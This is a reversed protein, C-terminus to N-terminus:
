SALGGTVRMLTEQVLLEHDLTRLPESEGKINRVLEAFTDVYRARDEIKIISIGKKYDGQDEELTLKITDAPEFPEMIASGKTGYVEFRRAMPRAELAAIDVTAIANSYEFVGLTNDMMDRTESASNQFFRSVKNPRGLIWVVQDLMHGGLDYMVGGKFHAVGEKGTQVGEPNREPLWTSMHARIQFIHGLFGSRAWNAIREFGDHKRFMYGMQLMTNQARAQEVVHEFRQYDDGAPKDYFVHKSAAVIEATFGLSEKNAGESAVCVVSPDDLFADPSDVFDVQNWENSNEVQERRAADPEFIGVVEVEPHDIMVQLVGQAHGHKTGYQAMRLKETM